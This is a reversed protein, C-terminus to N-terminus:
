SLLSGFHSVLIAGDLRYLTQANLYEKLINNILVSFAINLLFLIVRPYLLAVATKIRTLVLLYSCFEYM